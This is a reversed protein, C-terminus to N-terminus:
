LGGGLIIYALFVFAAATAAVEVPPLRLERLAPLKPGGFTQYSRATLQSFPQLKRM